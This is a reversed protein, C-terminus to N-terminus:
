CWFCAPGGVLILPAQVASPQWPVRPLLQRAFAVKCRPFYAVRRQGDKPLVVARMGMLEAWLFKVGDCIAMRPEKVGVGFSGIDVSIPSESYPQRTPDGSVAQLAHFWAQKARGTERHLEEAMASRGRQGFFVKM